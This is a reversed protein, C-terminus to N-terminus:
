IKKYGEALEVNTHAVEEMFEQQDHNIDVLLNLDEPKAIVTGTPVVKGAPIDIGEVIAGHKVMSGKGVTAKFVVANFGVFCGEELVCPGHVICGHALSSHSGIVVECGALAHIIVGDQLNVGDGIIVPAVKGTDAAVEDARVVANPGIYCNEGIVVPGIVVATPDVYASPDVQSMDGVPNKRLSESM